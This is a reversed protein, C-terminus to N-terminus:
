LSGPQGQTTSRTNTPSYAQNWSGPHPSPYAEPGGVAPGGQLERWAGPSTRNQWNPSGSPLQMHPSQPDGFALAQPTMSMGMMDMNMGRGGMPTQGGQSMALATSNATMQMGPQMPQNGLMGMGMPGGM